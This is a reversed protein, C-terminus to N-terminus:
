HSASFSRISHWEIVEQLLARETRLVVHELSNWTKCSAVQARSAELRAKMERYRAVRRQLDNISIISIAAAALAPLAIPLFVYTTGEIWAPVDLELTLSIAYFATSILALVTAISFGAALRRYLPLARGM